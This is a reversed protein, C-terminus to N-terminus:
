MVIGPPKRITNSQIFVNGTQQCRLKSQLCFAATIFTTQRYIDWNLKGVDRVRRSRCFSASLSSVLPLVKTLSVITIIIKEDFKEDSPGGANGSDGNSKFTTPWWVNWFCGHNIQETHKQCHFGRDANTKIDIYWTHTRLTIKLSLRQIIDTQRAKLQWRWGWGNDRMWQWHAAGAVLKRKKRM